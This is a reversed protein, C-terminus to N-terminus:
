AQQQYFTQLATKSPPVSGNVRRYSAYASREAANEVSVLLGDGYLLHPPPTTTAKGNKQGNASRGSRRQETSANGNLKGSKGVPVSNKVVAGQVPKRAAVATTKRTVPRGNAKTAVVPVSPASSKKVAAKKATAAVPVLKTEGGNSPSLTYPPPVGVMEQHVMMRMVDWAHLYALVTAGLRRAEALKFTVNVATKAAGNPTIAGTQTLKGDGTKLEIYVNQGKVKVSLVRSIAPDGNKPPTGKYEKHEFGQEGRALASFIVRADPLDLFYHCHADMGNNRRYTGGFLRLKGFHLSDAVHLFKSQTVHSHIRVRSTSSNTSSSTQNSM